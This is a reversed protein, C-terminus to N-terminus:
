WVMESRRFPCQRGPGWRPDGGQEFLILAYAM